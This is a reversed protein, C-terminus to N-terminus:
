SLGRYIVLVCSKIFKPLYLNEIIEIDNRAFAKGLKAILCLFVLAILTVISRGALQRSFFFYVSLILPFFLFSLSLRYRSNKVPVYKISVFLYLLGTIVWATSKALSAGIIGLPRILLLSLALNVLVTVFTIAVMKKNLDYAQIVGTYLVPLIQFCLGLLLIEFAVAASIYAVGFIGKFLIQAFNMLLMIFFVWFFTLQPIIRVRFRDILEARNRSRIFVIVPFGVISIPMIINSIYTIMRDAAGYLGVDVINLFIRVFLMNMWLIFYGLGVHMILPASYKLTVFISKRDPRLLCIIDWKLLILTIFVALVIYSVIEVSIILLPTLQHIGLYVLLVLSLAVVQRVVLSVAYINMRQTAQLFQILFDFAIYFILYAGLFYVPLALGTFEAFKGKFVFVCILMLTISVSVILLQTSFTKNIKNTNSFEEAGFRISASKNWSIFICFFFQAASLFLAYSGYDAPGMKRAILTLFLLSLPMSILQAVFVGLYSRAVDRVAKM